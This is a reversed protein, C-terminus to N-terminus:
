GQKKEQFGETREKEAKWLWGEERAMGDEVEPAIYLPRNAAKRWFVLSRESIRRTEEYVGELAKLFNKAEQECGLCRLSRIIRTIRLHNHSFQTVWRRGQSHFDLRQRIVGDDGMSTFGYFDLMRNLAKLLNTRLGPRSHFASYTALDITPASPNIPSREPLPFLTQIYDHHYELEDDTFALIQPLTRAEVDRAHLNPDYFNVIRNTASTPSSSAMGRHSPSQVSAVIKSLRPIKNRSPLSSLGPYKPNHLRLLTPRLFAILNPTKLPQHIVLAKVSRM